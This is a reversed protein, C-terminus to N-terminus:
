PILSSATAEGGEWSYITVTITDQSVLSTGPWTLKTTGGQELDVSVGIAVTENLNEPAIWFTEGLAVIKVMGITMNIYGGGVTGSNIFTVKVVSFKGPVLETLSVDLATMPNETVQVVTSDNVAATGVRLFAHDTMNYYQKGASSYDYRLVLAEQVDLRLDPSLWSAEIDDYLCDFQGTTSGSQWWKAIVNSNSAWAVRNNFPGHWAGGDKRIRFQSTSTFEVELEFWTGKSYTIDTTLNSAGNNYRITGDDYTGIGTHWTNSSDAFRIWNYGSISSVYQRWKITHGISGTTNFVLRGDGTSGSGSADRSRLRVNGGTKYTSISCSSSTTGPKEWTGIYCALGNIDLGASYGQFDELREVGLYVASNNNLNIQSSSNIWLRSINTPVTGVNKVTVYVTENTLASTMQNQSLIDIREGSTITKIRVSDAAVVASKNNIAYVSVQQIADLKLAGRNIRITQTQGPEFFYDSSGELAWGSYTSGNIRVESLGIRSAGTNKVQVRITGNTWAVGSALNVPLFSRYRTMEPKSFDILSHNKIFENGYVIDSEPLTMFDQTFTLAAQDKCFTITFLDSVGEVMTANVRAVEGVTFAQTAASVSFRRVEGAPIVYTENVATINGRSYTIDNVTVNGLTVAESGTNSVDFEVKNPLQGSSTTRNVHVDLSTAAKVKPDPDTKHVISYVGGVANVSANFYVGVVENELFVSPTSGPQQTNFWYSKTEGPQVEPTGEYPYTDYYYKQGAIQYASIYASTLNLPHSGTNQIAVNGFGNDYLTTNVISFDSEIATYDVKYIKVTSNSSFFAKRFVKFNFYDPAGMLSADTWKKFHEPDTVSPKDPNVVDSRRPQYQDTGDGSIERAAWYQLQTTAKDTTFPEENFMLRVLQSKFWKEEYQGTSENIYDNYNFVQYQGTTPDNYKYWNEAQQLGSYDKYTNSFDNCIKVMWPWKGEDGGLGSVLHGYYVLVYDANLKRFIRGAELEDNMMMGMGVLGIRTSNLTANDNVSTVNGLITSWYGYDWWSVVVTSSKLNTQMWTLSEEWDHFQGGVVLETYPLQTKAVDTAQSVQAIGLIGIFIFVAYTVGPDMGQKAERRHVRASQMTRRRSSIAVFSKLIQSIGYAGMIAAIPAFLMIVRTMSGTFYYLTLTIIIWVIDSDSGRKYAFYIGPIVFLLPIFVNYYFTAWPSPMHEGVSAVLAIQDRLLPNLLTLFRAPLSLIPTFLSLVYIGGAAVLIIPITLKKLRSWFTRYWEIDSIKKRYFYEVIPLAFMVLIPVIFDSATFFAPINARRITSRIVFGIGIVTTYAILLRTSYKKALVLIIVCLPLLMAVYTYGGWSIGLYGFALGGLVGDVISGKKVARIFFLLTLLTSFVGVTENDFFGAVTRQMYGPSFALFFAALIGTKKDLVEKGLFYAVICTLGGMFAPFIFCVDYLTVPFGLGSLIQYVVVATVPLGVYMNYFANGEPYWSQFDRWMAMEWYGNNLIYEATKYQAWPDFEKILYVGNFIPSLRIFVGCVFILILSIVLLFNAPVIKMSARAREGGERFFSKIKSTLTPM